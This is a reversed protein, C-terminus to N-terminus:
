PQPPHGLRDLMDRIAAVVADPDEMPILHSATPVPRDEASPLRNALDRATTSPLGREAIGRLVIAPARVSALEPWLNFRLTEQYIAAETEPACKLTVQGGHTERVAEQVYLDFIDPRWANFPAKVGLSERMAERSPWSRRRRAARQFLDSRLATEPHEYAYPPYIVPDVLVLARVLPAYRAACLAAAAGGVSHGVLVAPGLALAKLVSGLDDPFVSWYYSDGPESDGHGRLDLGLVRADGTFQVAIPHWLAALFGTAHVFLLPDGNGGWDLLHLRLGNAQVALDRADPPTM